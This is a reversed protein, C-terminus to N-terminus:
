MNQMPVSDLYMVFQVYDLSSYCSMFLRSVVHETMINSIKPNIILHDEEDRQPNMQTIATKVIMLNNIIDRM